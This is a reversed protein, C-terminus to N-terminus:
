DERDIIKGEQTRYYIIIGGDAKVARGVKTWGQEEPTPERILSQEQKIVSLPAPPLSQQVAIVPQPKYGFVEAIDSQEATIPKYNNAAYEVPSWSCNLAFTKTNNRYAVDLATIICSAASLKEEIVILVPALNEAPIELSFSASNLAETDEPPNETKISANLPMLDSRLSSVVSLPFDQSTFANRNPPMYNEDFFISLAYVAKDREYKIESVLSDQIYDLQLIHERIKGPEGGNLNIFLPVSSVDNFKWHTILAENRSISLATDVLITFALPLPTKLSETEVPPPTASLAAATTSESETHSSFLRAFLVALIVVLAACLVALSIIKMNVHEPKFVACRQPIKKSSLFVDATDSGIKSDSLAPQTYPQQQTKDYGIIEDESSYSEKETFDTEKSLISTMTFFSTHPHLARYETLVAKDMVTVLFWRKSEIDVKKIDVALSDSFGPHIEKLQKLVYDRMLKGNHIHEPCAIFYCEHDKRSIIIKKM